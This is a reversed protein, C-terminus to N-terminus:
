IKSHDKGPLIPSKKQSDLSPATEEDQDGIAPIFKRSLAAFLSFVVGLVVSNMFAEALVQPRALTTPNNEVYTSFFIVHVIGALIGNLFGAAFGHGAYKEPINRALVIACVVAVIIWLFAEFWFDLGFLTAIGM